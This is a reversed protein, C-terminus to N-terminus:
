GAGQAPAPFATNLTASLQDPTISGSKTADSDTFWKEITTMLEARTVSGDKDIDALTFLAPGVGGGGRGGGRGAAPAAQGPAAPQPQQAQGLATAFLVGACLVTLSYLASKRTAMLGGRRRRIRRRVGGSLASNVFKLRNSSPHPTCNKRYDDTKETFEREGATTGTTKLCECGFPYPYTWLGLDERERRTTSTPPRPRTM